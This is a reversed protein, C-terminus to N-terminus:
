NAGEPGLVGASMALRVLHSLNKAGTKFMLRARHNEVTRPSIDLDRAVEKNSKGIVVLGLVERERPSLGEIMSKLEPNVGSQEPGSQAIKLAREVCALMVEDSFPKEVFDLAGNKIAKVALPIDGHGSMFVIPIDIGDAVLKEQLELGTMGPMRVDLVLCGKRSGDYAELFAAPSEFDEVKFDESELLARLTLRITDHDDVVFVTLGDAM